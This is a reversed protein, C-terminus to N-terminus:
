KYLCIVPLPYVIESRGNMILMILLNDLTKLELNFGSYIKAKVNWILQKNYMFFFFLVSRYSYRKDPFIVRCCQICQMLFSDEFFSAIFQVVMCVSLDFVFQSRQSQFPLLCVSLCCYVFVMCCLFHQFFLYFLHPYKILIIKFQMFELMYDSKTFFLRYWSMLLCDKHACEM